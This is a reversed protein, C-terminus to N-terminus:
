EEKDGLTVQVDIDALESKLTAVGETFAQRVAEPSNTALAQVAATLTKLQATTAADRVKAARLESYLREIGPGGWILLRDVKVLQGAKFRKAPDTVNLNMAKAQGETLKVTDTLEMDNEEQHARIRDAVRKVAAPGANIEIHMGDITGQQYFEGDRLVGDYRAVLERLGARKLDSYTNHVGRPHRTANLDWATSSAHNSYGSTQGRVPRVNYSWDDYGPSESVPLTISEITDHFRQTFDALVVAVDDNAAWFGVGAVKVRTFHSTDDYVPWGNQSTGLKTM